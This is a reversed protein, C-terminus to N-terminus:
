RLTRHTVSAGDEGHAEEDRQREDNDDDNDDDGDGDDRRVDKGLRASRVVLLWEM